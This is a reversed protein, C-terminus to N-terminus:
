IKLNRFKESVMRGNLGLFRKMDIWSVNFAKNRTLHPERSIRNFDSCFEDPLSNSFSIENSLNRIRSGWGKLLLLFSIFNLVIVIVLKSSCLVLYSVMVWFQFSNDLLLMFLLLVMIFLSGFDELDIWEMKNLPEELQSGHDTLQFVNWILM